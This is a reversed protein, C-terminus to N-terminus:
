KAVRFCYTAVDKGDAQLEVTYDGALLVQAPVDAVVMADNRSAAGKWVAPREPSGVIVRYAAAQGAPYPLALELRVEDTGPPVKIEEGGAGESRTLGPELVLTVFSTTESTQVFQQVPQKRQSPLLL